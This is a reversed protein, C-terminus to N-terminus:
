LIGWDSRGAAAAVDNGFILLDELTSLIRRGSNNMNMAPSSLMAAVVAVRRQKRGFVKCSSNCHRTKSPLMSTTCFFIIIFQHSYPVVFLPCLHCHHHSSSLFFFFICLVIIIIQHSSSSSSSSLVCIVVIILQHSSSSSPLSSCALMTFQRPSSSSPLSFCPSNIILLLFPSSSLPLSCVGASSGDSLGSDGRWKVRQNPPLKGSRQAELFLFSKELADAYNFTMAMAPRGMHLLLLSLVMVMMKMMVMISCRYYQIGKKRM